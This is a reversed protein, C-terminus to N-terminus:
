SFVVEETIDLGVARQYAADGALIIEDVSVPKTYVTHVCWEDNYRYQVEHKILKGEGNRIAVVRARGKWKSEDKMM